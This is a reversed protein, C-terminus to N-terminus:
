RHAEIGLAALIDDADPCTAIVYAAAAQAIPQDVTVSQYTTTTRHMDIFDYTM